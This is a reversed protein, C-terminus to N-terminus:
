SYPAVSQVKHLLKRSPRLVTLCVLLLAVVHSIPMQPNNQLIRYVGYAFCSQIICFEM